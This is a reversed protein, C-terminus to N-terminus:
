DFEPTIDGWHRLKALAQHDTLDNRLPTISIFGEHIAEFDVGPVEHWSVSDEGIWFYKMGRPDRGEVISTAAIKSGTPTIKVGKIEGPPINVNLLTGKLLGETLVKHAIQCAFKAAKEFNFKERGVQSIAISPLGYISGELAGAVTGSYTVNDGLNAGRNIGSVVLDPWPQDKLVQNLALVVCDTPTGDVRYWNPRVEIIRLPRILTLSHSAASMESSPAVVIVEGLQELEQALRIIGESFIGDDNTVLIRTM